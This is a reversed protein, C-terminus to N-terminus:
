HVMVLQWGYVKPLRTYHFFLSQVWPSTPKFGVEAVSWTIEPMNGIRKTDPNKKQFIPVIDAALTTKFILHSLYALHKKLFILVKIEKEKEM